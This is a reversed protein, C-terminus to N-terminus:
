RNEYEQCLIYLLAVEMRNETGLLDNLEILSSLYDQKSRVTEGDDSTPHIFKVLINKLEPIIYGMTESVDLIIRTREHGLRDVSDEVWGSLCEITTLDLKNRSAVLIDNLRRQSPTNDEPYFGMNNEKPTAETDGNSAPMFSVIPGNLLDDNEIDDEIKSDDSETLEIVDEDTEPVDLENEEGSEQIELPSSTKVEVSSQTKVSESQTPLSFANPNFPNVNNLFSERLDLLVAQVENKLIKIEDELQTVKDNLDM